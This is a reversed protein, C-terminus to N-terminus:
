ACLGKTAARKQLMILLEVTADLDCTPLVMINHQCQLSVLKGWFSVTQWGTKVWKPKAGARKPHSLVAVVGDVDKWNGELILGARDYVADCRKLQASVRGKISNLFDRIAKRELGLTLGARDTIVYDAEHLLIAQFPVQAVALKLRAEHEGKGRTDVLIPNV